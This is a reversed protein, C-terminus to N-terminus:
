YKDLDALCNLVVIRDNFKITVRGEASWVNAKGYKTLAAKLLDMRMKTLNETVVIKGGKLKRKANFIDQRTRFSLFRVIIPRSKINTAAQRTNRSPSDKKPGYRHSRQISVKGFDEFGLNNIIVSLVVDDTNEKTEVNEHEPIGHFLLCNNRSRQEQDDVRRLLKNVEGHLRLNDDTLKNISNENVAKVDELDQIRKVLGSIAHFEQLLTKMGSILLLAWPPIDAPDFTNLGEIISRLNDNEVM